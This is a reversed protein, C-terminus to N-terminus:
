LRTNHATSMRKRANSAEMEQELTMSEHALEKRQSNFDNLQNGFDLLDSFESLMSKLFFTGSTNNEFVISEKSTTEQEFDSAVEVPGEVKAQVKTEVKSEELEPLIVPKPLSLVSEPTTEAIAMPAQTNKGQEVAKKVLDKLSHPDRITGKPTAKAPIEKEIFSGFNFLSM